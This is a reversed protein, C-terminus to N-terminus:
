GLGQTVSGISIWYLLTAVVSLKPNPSGCTSNQWPKVTHHWNWSIIYHWNDENCWQFWHAGKKEHHMEYEWNIQFSLLPWLSFLFSRLWEKTFPSILKSFFLCVFRGSPQRLVNRNRHSDKPKEILLITYFM